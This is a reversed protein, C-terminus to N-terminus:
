VLEPGLRFAPVVRELEVAAMGAYAREGIEIGRLLLQHVRRLFTDVVAAARHLDLAHQPVVALRRILLVRAVEDHPEREPDVLVIRPLPVALVALLLALRGAALRRRGLVLSGPRPFLALSAHVVVGVVVVHDDGACTVGAALRRERGRPHAHA